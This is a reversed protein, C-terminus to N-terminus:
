HLVVTVIVLVIVKMVLQIPQMKMIGKELKKSDNEDMPEMKQQNLQMNPPNLPQNVQQPPVGGSMQIVDSGLKTLASFFNEIDEGSVNSKGFHQNKSISNLEPENNEMNLLCESTSLLADFSSSARGTMNTLAAAVMVVDKNISDQENCSDNHSKKKSKKHKKSNSNRKKDEHLRRRHKKEKKKYQHILRAEIKERSKTEKYFRAYIKKRALIADRKSDDNKCKSLVKMLKHFKRKYKIRLQQKNASSDNSSKYRCVHCFFTKIKKSLSKSVGVCDGHYWEDCKDCARSLSNLIEAIIEVVFCSVDHVTSQRIIQM